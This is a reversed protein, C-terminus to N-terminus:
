NKVASIMPLAPKNRDSHYARECHGRDGLLAAVADIAPRTIRGWAKRNGEARWARSSMSEEALGGTIANGLRTLALGVQGRWTM